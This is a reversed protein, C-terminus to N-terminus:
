EKSIALTTKTPMVLEYSATLQVFVPWGIGCPDGVIGKKEMQVNIALTPSNVGFEVKGEKLEGLHTGSKIVYVCKGLVAHNITIQIESDARVTGNFTGAINSFRLNGLEITTMPHTCFEVGNEWTLAANRTTAELLIPNPNTIIETELTSLTCTNYTIGEATSFVKVVTMPELEFDLLKKVPWKNEAACKNQQVECLVGGASATGPGVVATLAIAVVVALGLTKVPKM